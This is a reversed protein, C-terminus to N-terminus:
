TEQLDVSYLSNTTVLYLRSGRGFANMFGIVAGDESVAQREEKALEGDESQYLHVVFLKDRQGYGGTFLARDKWVAVADAGHIPNNDWRRRIQGNQVRVLPFNTYPCLWAEEDGVVNLAYCDAIMWENAANFNFRQVGKDDFVALGASGLAADANGFVGEDFYSVWIQGSSTTQVDKIGDGLPMTHLLKGEASYIHGNANLDGDARTRVLLWRGEPLPQARYFDDHAEAIDVVEWGTEVEHYIRSRTPRRTVGGASKPVRERVRQYYPKQEMAVIIAGGSPGVSVAVRHWDSVISTFDVIHRAALPQIM